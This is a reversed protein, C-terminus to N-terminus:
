EATLRRSLETVLQKGYDARVKGRQEEEVIVRGINWYAQVM